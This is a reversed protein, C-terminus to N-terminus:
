RVSATSKNGGSRRYNNDAGTAFKFKREGFILHHFIHVIFCHGWSIYLNNEKFCVYKKINFILLQDAIHDWLVGRLVFTGYESLRTGESPTSGGVKVISADQETWQAVLAVFLLFM